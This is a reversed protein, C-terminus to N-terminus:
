KVRDQRGFHSILLPYYHAGGPTLDSRFLTIKNVTFSGTCDALKKEFLATLRNAEDTTINDQVRGLTLHPSFRRDEKKFGLKETEIEIKEYLLRLPHCVEVGTWIVRAKRSSPFAGLQGIQIDFVNCDSAIMSVVSQLTEVQNFPVDGLFKLTLHINEPPVWRIIGPLLPNLVQTVRGM